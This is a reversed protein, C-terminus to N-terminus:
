LLKSSLISNRNYLNPFCRAFQNIDSIWRTFPIHVDRSTALECDKGDLSPCM